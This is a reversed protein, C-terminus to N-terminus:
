PGRRRAEGAHTVIMAGQIEDALDVKLAGDKAAHGLFAQLNRAYMQSAHFPVTAPLNVPGLVLVGDADVAEQPRTAECNGGAEAALDVIVSGPRMTRLMDRTVLRPAPRGPVLATSVVLDQQPLHKAVAALVRRQQEAALEKAYGGAGEAAVEAEVFTAGLSQVQEKVAPRVDFASVLCGLRRATAIAQLGAVGAGLVFARAPALTGAATTLMPTIRNMAEVGVVVAKFGALTAQSSLADMSQARTIRPVLEMAYATVRRRTLAEVLEAAALPALLAVLAAGEALRAAEEPSPRQVKLVLEAGLAAAADVLRAGAAEYQADPFGAGAGAGREVAVEFGGKVLRAVVDPVLAVRREGATTERPVGIRV